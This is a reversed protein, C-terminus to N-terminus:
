FKGLAVPSGLVLTKLLEFTSYFSGLMRYKIRRSVQMVDILKIEVM